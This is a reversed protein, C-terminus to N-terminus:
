FDHNLIKKILTQIAPNTSHACAKSLICCFYRDIDCNVQISRVGPYGSLDVIRRDSEVFDGYMGILNHRMILSAFADLSTAHGLIKPSGYKNLTRITASDIPADNSYFFGLPYQLIREMTIAKSKFIDSDQRACFYLRGEGLELYRDKNELDAYKERDVILIGIANEDTEKVRQRVTSADTFYTSVIIEPFVDSYLSLMALLKEKFVATAYINVSDASVPTNHVDAMMKEYQALTEQAFELVRSGEKTLTVGKGTRNLLKADIEEELKKISANMTQHSIFYKEGAKNISGCQAIYILYQLQELRM